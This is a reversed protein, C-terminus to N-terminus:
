LVCQSWTLSTSDHGVQRSARNLARHVWAKEPPKLPSFLDFYRMRDALESCAVELARWIAEHEHDLYLPEVILAGLAGACGERYQSMDEFIFEAEGREARFAGYPRPGYIHCLSAGRADDAIRQIASRRFHEDRVCEDCQRENSETRTRIVCLERPYFRCHLDSSLYSNASAMGSVRNPTLSFKGALDAVRYLWDGEAARAWYANCVERIRPNDSHILAGDLDDDIPHEDQEDQSM